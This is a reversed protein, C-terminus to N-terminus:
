RIPDGGAVLRLLGLKGLLEIADGPAPGKLMLTLEDRIREGSVHSILKARSVVADATRAELQFGLTTTFRAARLLRLADERFREEPDGIARVIGAESIRSAASRISCARPRRATSFRMSSTPAAGAPM